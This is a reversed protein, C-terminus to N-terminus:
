NTKISCMKRIAFARARICIASAHAAVDGEFKPQLHRLSGPIAAFVTPTTFQVANNSKFNIMDYASFVAAEGNKFIKGVSANNAISIFPAVKSGLKVRGFFQNRKEVRALVNPLIMKFIIVAEDYLFGINAFRSYFNQVQVVYIADDFAPNLGFTARVRRGSDDEQGIKNSM